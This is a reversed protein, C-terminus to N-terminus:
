GRSVMGECWPGYGTELSRPTTLTRNCRACRGEELLAYGKVAWPSYVNEIALSWLMDAYVEYASWRAPDQAEKRHWVHIGAEDVFAFGEYDVENNPGNLLGLVRQGPAFKADAPQTEIQFTRHEGTSRNVVTYRGNFVALPKMAIDASM